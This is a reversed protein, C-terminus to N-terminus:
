NSHHTGWNSCKKDHYQHCSHHHHNNNHCKAIIIIITKIIQSHNEGQFTGEVQGDGTQRYTSRRPFYLAAPTGVELSSCVRTFFLFQVVQPNLYRGRRWWFFRLNCLCSSEKSHRPRASFWPVQRSLWVQPGYLPNHCHNLDSVQEGTWRGMPAMLVGLWSLTAKLNWLAPQWEVM